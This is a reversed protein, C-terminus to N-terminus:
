LYGCFGRSRRYVSPPNDKIDDYLTNVNKKKSLYDNVLDKNDRIFQRDSEDVWVLKNVAENYADKLSQGFSSEEVAKLWEKWTELMKSLSFVTETESSINDINPYEKTITVGTNKEDKYDTSAAINYGVWEELLKRLRNDAGLKELVEERTGTIGLYEAVTKAKEADTFTTM